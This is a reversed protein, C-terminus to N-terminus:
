EEIKAKGRVSTSAKSTTSKRRRKRRKPKDAASEVVESAVSEVSDVVPVSITEPRPQPQIREVEHSEIEVPIGKKELYKQRQALALDFDGAGLETPAIYEYRERNIENLKQWNEFRSADGKNLTGTFFRIDLKTLEPHDKDYGIPKPTLDQRDWYYAFVGPKVNWFARGQLLEIEILKVQGFDKAM